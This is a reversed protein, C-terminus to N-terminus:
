EWMGEEPLPPQYKWIDKLDAAFSDLEDVLRPLEKLLSELEKLLKTKIAEKIPEMRAVPKGSREIIYHDGRFKIKNLLESFERVAQTATIRKEM